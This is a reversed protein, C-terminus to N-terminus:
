LKLYYLLGVFIIAAVLFTGLAFGNLTKERTWSGYAVRM